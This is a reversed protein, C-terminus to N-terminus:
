RLYELYKQHTQVKEIRTLNATMQTFADRHNTARYLNKTFDIHLRETTETSYNSVTGFQQISEVYHQLSHIKPLNFHERCGHRRFVDKHKHFQDLASQLYQLTEGNHQTYEAIYAFDILGRTAASADIKDRTTLKPADQICGVLLRAIEKHERGSLQSLKSIGEDFHRAGHALPMCKIRHDLEAVGLLDTCWSTLYKIVGQWLQHLTDVTISEHIDIVANDFGRWFPLLIPKVRRKQLYKLTQSTNPLSLGNAIELLTASHSRTEFQENKGFDDDKALCKPCGNTCTVLCQEPYDAAYCALLPMCPRVFGDACELEWGGNEMALEVEEMIVSVAAHFMAMHYRSAEEENKINTAKSTPLYGVLVQTHMSPKRRLHNPINGLTVYVLYATKDGSFSTLQTKDSSFILPILTKGPYSGQKRWWWRGTWMETFVQANPDNTSEKDPYHQEPSYQFQDKLHIAGLLSQVCQEM